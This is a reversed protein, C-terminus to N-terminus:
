TNVITNVISQSEKGMGQGGALERPGREAKAKGSLLWRSWLKSWFEQASVTEREGLASFTERGRMNYGPAALAWARGRSLRSSLGVGRSALLKVQM